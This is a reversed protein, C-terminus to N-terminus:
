AHIFIIEGCCQENDFREWHHGHGFENKIDKNSNDNRINPIKHRFCNGTFIKRIHNQKLRHQECDVKVSCHRCGPPESAVKASSVVVEVVHCYQAFTM